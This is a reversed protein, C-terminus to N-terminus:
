ANIYLFWAYINLSLCLGLACACAYLLVVASRVAGVAYERRLSKRWLEEDQVLLECDWRAGVKLGLKFDKGCERWCVYYTFRKPSVWAAWASQSNDYVRKSVCSEWRGHPRRKPARIASFKDCLHALVCRRVGCLSTDCPISGQRMFAGITSRCVIKQIKGLGTESVNNTM